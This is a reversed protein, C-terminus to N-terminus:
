PMASFEAEEPHQVMCIGGCRKIAEMGAVGDQLMGMLIIGIVKPGYAVAASRFLTDISPRYYNEKPGGTIIVKQEKILMHKNVPALYVEGNKTSTGNDPVLCTLKTNKQLVELLVSDSSNAGRHLVICIATALTDPLNKLFAPLAAIGGASAGIVILDPHPM